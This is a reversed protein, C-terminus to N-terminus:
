WIQFLYEGGVKDKRAQKNSMVGRPTSLVAVGYGQKVSTLERYGMYQHRSPKSVLKFDNVVPRKDHYKLKIEIAPHRGSTKKQVEGLYGSEQLVKAVAFDMKSFPVVLSDKQARQANKIKPLLDYYM